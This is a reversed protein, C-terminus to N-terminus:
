LHGGLRWRVGLILCLLLLRTLTVLLIRNRWSRLRLLLTLHYESNPCRRATLDLHWRGIIIMMSVLVLERSKIAIQRFLVFNINVWSSCRALILTSIVVVVMSRETRLLIIVIVRDLDVSDLIDIYLNVLSFFWSHWGRAVLLWVTTRILIRAWLCRQILLAWETAVLMMSSKRRVRPLDVVRGTNQLRWQIISILLLLPCWHVIFHKFNSGGLVIQHAWRGM